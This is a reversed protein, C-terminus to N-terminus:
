AFNDTMSKSKAFLNKIPKQILVLVSAISIIAIVYSPWMPIEFTVSGGPIPTEPTAPLFADFLFLTLAGSAARFVFDATLVMIAVPRAWSCVRLLSYAVILKAILVLEVLACITGTFTGLTGIRAFHEPLYHWFIVYWRLHFWFHIPFQWIPCVEYLATALSLLGLLRVIMITHKEQMGGGDFVTIEPHSRIMVRSLIRAQTKQPRNPWGWKM